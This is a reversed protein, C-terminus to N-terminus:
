GTNELNSTITKQKKLCFVAYSIRMLSQLESTHEESRAALDGQSPLDDLGAPRHVSEADVLAGGAVDARAAAAPQEDRRRANGVLRQRRVVDHRHREIGVVASRFLTTHPFRTDPRTSRPPPRIILLFFYCLCIDM